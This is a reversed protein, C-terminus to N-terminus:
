PDLQRNPFVAIFNAFYDVCFLKGLTLYSCLVHLLIDKSLYQLLKWLKCIVTNKFGFNPCSQLSYLVSYNAKSKFVSNAFQNLSHKRRELVNELQKHIESIYGLYM